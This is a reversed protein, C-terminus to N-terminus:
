IRCHTVYPVMSGTDIGRKGRCDYFPPTHFCPEMSEDKQCAPNLTTDNEAKFLMTEFRYSGSSNLWIHVM